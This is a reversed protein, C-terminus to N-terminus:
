PHSWDKKVIAERIAERSEKSLGDYLWDYGIAMGMTMEAVDLFHSPNWDSFGAIYVMEKEARALFKADGTTRYAYSLYFIRRLAERSKDLLRRGIQIREIPPLSIIKESEKVIAQHMRGWIPSLQISNKIAEEEGKLLMIRPHDMEFGNQPPIESKECGASALVALIASLLLIIKLRM